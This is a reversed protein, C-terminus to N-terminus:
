ERDESSSDCREEGGRPHRISPFRSVDSPNETSASDLRTQWADSDSSDARFNSPRTVFPNSRRIAPRSCTSSYFPTALGCNQRNPNPRPSSAESESSSDARVANPRARSVDSISSPSSIAAESDSDLHTLNHRNIIPSVLPGSESSEDIRNTQVWAESDSSDMRSSLPRSQSPSKLSDDSQYRRYFPTRPRSMGDRTFGAESESSDMRESLPRNFASEAPPHLSFRRNEALPPSPQGSSSASFGLEQSPDPSPLETQSYCPDPTSLESRIVEADLERQWPEPTSLESRNPPSDPSGPLEFTKSPPQEKENRTFFYSGDVESPPTMPGPDEKVSVTPAIPKKVELGKSFDEKLDQESEPVIKIATAGAEDDINKNLKDRNRRRLCKFIFFGACLSAIVLIAVAIGAIAGVGIGHSGSSQATKYVTGNGSTPNSGPGGTTSNSALPVIHSPANPDFVAQSISFNSQEYDVILFAEQFFTRGLTISKDDNARKLPFYRSGRKIVPPSAELDFSAYPLTINVSPGGNPGNALQFVVSANTKLLTEHLTDNVLYLNSIPDPQELGFAHVFADCAVQPLWFYPVTSDVLALAGDSLLSSQSKPTSYTISQLGVLLQRTDTPAFNFSVDNPILRSADYGGLTLSGPAGKKERYSAGATYGYSLSPISNENKLSTLLSPSSDASSFNIPHPSLGLNGVFFTKTEIAAIVQHNVSVNTGKGQIELNDYGYTGNLDTSSYGLASEDGLAYLDKRNWSSSKTDDFAGGRADTCNAADGQDCGAPAVAWTSAVETAALVQLQQPPSGVGILFTSWAGDNGLFDGSPNVVIPAAEIPM